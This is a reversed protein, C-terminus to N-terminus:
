QKKTNYWIRHDFAVDKEERSVFLPRPITYQRFFISEGYKKLFPCIGHMTNMAACLDGVVGFETGGAPLGLDNGCFGLLGLGGLGRFISLFAGFVGGGVGFGLSLLAFVLMLGGYLSVNGMDGPHIGLDILRSMMIPILMEMVVEGIMCLPTLVTPRLYQRIQRALTRIM